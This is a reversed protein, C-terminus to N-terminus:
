WFMIKKIAIFYLSFIPNAIYTLLPNNIEQYNITGVFNNFLEKDSIKRLAQVQRRKAFIKTWNEKRLFYQYSWIKKRFWGRYVAFVVQGAEMLILAPWILALSPLKYFWFLILFRNREMYDIRAVSSAFTYKHYIISNNAFVIKHGALRALLGLYLDDHYMWLEEELIGIEELLSLDILSATGSSYCIEENPFERNAELNGKAFGFGLYHVDCGRANIKNHDTHYLLKSQVIKINDDSGIVALAEKLFDSHVVTDQNLLYVYDYDETVAKRIGRNYNVCFGRNINNEMLVITEKNEFSLGNIFNKVKDVTGDTSHDDTIIVRYDIKPYNIKVLSDLLEDIYEAGNYTGVIIAVKKYNLIKEVAPNIVSISM